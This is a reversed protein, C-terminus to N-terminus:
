MCIWKPLWSLCVIYAPTVSPDAIGSVHEDAMAVNFPCALSIIVVITVLFVSIIKTFRCSIFSM